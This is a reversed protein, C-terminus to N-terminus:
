NRSVPRDNRHYKARLTQRNQSLMSLWIVYIKTIQKFKEYKYVIKIKDIRGCLNEFYFQEGREEKSKFCCGCHAFKKFIVDNKDSLFIQSIFNQINEPNFFILRCVIQRILRVVLM